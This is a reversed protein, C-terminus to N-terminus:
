TWASVIRGASGAVRLGDQRNAFYRANIENSGLQEIRHFGLEQLFEDLEKPTFFLRFPEGARTVRRSLADLAMRELFPLSSRPVSYDFVAGSEAPFKGLFGFTHAAAGKTLYPVVGLWSVFAPKDARFGAALLEAALEQREFDVSVFKVSTPVPIAAANLCGMKWSQTNPHDVEFVKLDSNLAVGRYASTDLGAGLILYQSVGRAISAALQDEAYRSRAVMFARFRRAVPTRHSAPDSKIESAAGDGIIRLALPDDLVKPSDLLQHAARRLAVRFATRSPVSDRM